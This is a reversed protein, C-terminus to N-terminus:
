RDLDKCVRIYTSGGSRGYCRWPTQKTSYLDLLKNKKQHSETPNDLHLLHQCILPFFIQTMTTFQLKFHFSISKQQGSTAEHILSM